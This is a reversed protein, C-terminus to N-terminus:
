IYKVTLSFLDLCKCVIIFGTESFNHKVSGCPFFKVLAYFNCSRLNPQARLCALSYNLNGMERIHQSFELFFRLKVLMVYTATQKIMESLHKAIFETSQEAAFAACIVALFPGPNVTAEKTVEVCICLSWSIQHNTIKGFYLGM